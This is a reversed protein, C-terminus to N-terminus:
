MTSIERASYKSEGQACKLRDFSKIGCWVIDSNLLKNLCLTKHMTIKKSSNEDKIHLHMDLNNEVKSSDNILMM